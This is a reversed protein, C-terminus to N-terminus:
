YDNTGQCEQSETRGELQLIALPTHSHYCKHHHTAKTSQTHSSDRMLLPIVEMLRGVVVITHVVSLKVTFIGLVSSWNIVAVVGVVGFRTLRTIHVSYLSHWNALLQPEAKLSSTGLIMSASHKTVPSHRPVTFWRWRVTPVFM